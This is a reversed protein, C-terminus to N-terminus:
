CDLTNQREWGTLYSAYDNWEATKLKLFSDILEDGMRERLVESGDLLRLADLLNKPLQKYGKVTHGQEYMNIDLPKGPDRDNEIGDLGAALM